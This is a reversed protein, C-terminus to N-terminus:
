ARGGGREIAALGLASRVSAFFVLVGVFIFPAVFLLSSWLSLPRPAPIFDLGLIVAAACAACVGAVVMGRVHAGAFLHGAGPLLALVTILLARRRGRRMIAHEKMVKVRAEVRSKRSLFVHFCGACIGHPVEAADVRRSAPASCRRCAQAVPLRQAAVVLGLWWLPFCGFAIMAPWGTLGRWLQRSVAAEVEAAAASPAFALRTVDSRLPLIDVYARNHSVIEDPTRSSARRLQDIMESGFAGASAMMGQAKEPRGAKHHLLSGDFAAIVHNSRAGLDDRNMALGLEALGLEDQGACALAVGYGGHAWGADPNKAVLSRWRSLAETLRGERRASSALAANELTTLQQGPDAERTRLAVLEANGDVDFLALHLRAAASTPVVVARAFVDVAVPLVAVLVGTVVAVVRARPTMHLVSLTLMWLLSFVIGAGAVAPAAVALLVLAWGQVIHSGRPLFLWVDFALLPFASLAGILALTALLLLVIAVSAAAVRAVISGLAVPDGRLASAVNMLGTWVGAVDGSSWHLHALAALTSVDDPAFRRAAQALSVADAASGDDIAAQAARALAFGLTRAQFAGVAGSMGFDLAAQEIDPMMKRAAATGHKSASAFYPAIKDLFSQRSAEIVAFGSEIVDNSGAENATPGDATADDAKPLKEMAADNLTPGKQSVDTGADSGRSDQTKPKALAPDPADLDVDEPRVAGTRADDVEEIFERQAAVSGAAFVVLVWLCRCRLLLSSALM